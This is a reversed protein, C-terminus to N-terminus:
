KRTTSYVYAALALFLMSVIGLVAKEWLNNAILSLFGTYNGGTFVDFLWYGLPVLTSALSNGTLVGVLMGMSGLFLAGPLMAGIATALHFSTKIRFMCLTIALSLSLVVVGSLLIVFFFVYPNKQRATALDLTNDEIEQSLLPAFITAGLLPWFQQLMDLLVAERQSIAEPLFLFLPMFISAALVAFHISRVSIRLQYRVLSYM